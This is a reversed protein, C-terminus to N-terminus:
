NTILTPARGCRIARPGQSSGRAAIKHAARWAPDRTDKWSAYLVSGLGAVGVVVLAWQLPESRALSAPGLLHLVSLAAPAWLAVIAAWNTLATKLSVAM